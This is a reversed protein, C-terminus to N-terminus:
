EVDIREEFSRVLGKAQAYVRAKGPALTLTAVGHSDTRASVDGAHVTAGAILRGKGADDYGRVTVRLRGGGLAVPKAVLSRQCGSAKMRCYLWTVRTGPKLSRSPDAAGAGPTKNGIKYVWGNAGKAVDRGIRSVYLGAADIPRSSCSGYDKLKVGGVGSRLLAALPTGAPVSCRKSGVRAKTGVAKISEQKAAGSRFVVLQDVRPAASAAPAAAAAVLAAAAAASLGPRM